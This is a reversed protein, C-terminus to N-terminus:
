RIDLLQVEFILTANPPIIGGAGMEGYGLNSPIVLKRTGGVKMGAVGEDWGKIVMGEGIQFEFPQNRDLSSDFKGGNELWGTYHVMVFDGTEAEQGSGILIDEYQLGSATTTMNDGSSFFKNWNLALIVLVFLLLISAMILRQNQQKKARAARRKERTTQTM